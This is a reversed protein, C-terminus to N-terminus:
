PKGGYDEEDRSHVVITYNYKKSSNHVTVSLPGIKMFEGNV